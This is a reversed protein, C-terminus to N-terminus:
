SRIQDARKSAKEYVFWLNETSSAGSCRISVDGMHRNMCCGFIADVVYFSFMHLILFM